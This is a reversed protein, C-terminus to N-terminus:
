FSYRREYEPIIVEIDKNLEKVIDIFVTPNMTHIPILVRPEIKEILEELETRSAHGSVHTREIRKRLKECGPYNCEMPVPTEGLTYDIGFADLWNIFREEDLEMEDCFPECVAKIFRSGPIKGDDNALDFLQGLDYFSLMLVYKGPNAKIDQAIIGNDYHSADLVWSDREVSYGFEHKYSSYDAPSYLCSVKRKLFVRVSAPLPTQGLNNLIYALRANIVFTRGAAEAAERITEYRTTDKWSFDILVLGHTEKIEKTLREKVEEEVLKSESDIRTGELLLIEINDGVANVYDEITTGRTGHFRIDGTYLIRFPPKENKSELVYSAAGPVSHDVEVLTAQFDGIKTTEGDALTKCDRVLPTKHEIKPSGPVAGTKTYGVRSDKSFIAESKFTTVQDIAEVLIKTTASCYLPIDPHLFGIDGTHDLHAHSLLIADLYGCGHERYYNEYTVLGPITFLESDPALIRSYQNNTLENAGDAKILDSRYIGPIKPLLGITLKDKLETNSRIDLFDSLFESAFGMRTGFDLMIRSGEHEVLIKNGGIENVGGYFTLNVM